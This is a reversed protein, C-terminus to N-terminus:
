GRATEVCSDFITAISCISHVFILVFCFICSSAANMVSNYLNSTNCQMRWSIRNARLALCIVVDKCSSGRTRQHRGHRGNRADARRRVVRRHEFEARWTQRGKCCARRTPITLDRKKWSKAKTKNRACSVRQEDRFGACADVGCELGDAKGSWWWCGVSRRQLVDIMAASDDATARCDLCRNPLSGASSRLLM